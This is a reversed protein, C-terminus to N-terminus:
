LRARAREAKEVFGRPAELRQALYDVPSSASTWAEPVLRAVDELLAQDVRPALREDAEAISGACPLLM